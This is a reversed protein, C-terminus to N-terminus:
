PSRLLVGKLSSPVTIPARSDHFSKDLSSSLYTLYTETNSSLLSRDYTLLSKSVSAYMLYADVCKVCADTNSFCVRVCVCMCVYMCVHCVVVVGGPFNFTAVHISVRIYPPHQISQPYM